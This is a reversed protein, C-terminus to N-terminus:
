EGGLKKDLLDEIRNLRREIKLKKDDPISAIIDQIGEFEFNLERKLDRMLSSKLTEYQQVYKNTEFQFMSKAEDLENKLDSITGDKNEIESHFHEIEQNLEEIQEDKEKKYQMLNDNNKKLLANQDLQASLRDEMKYYLYQVDKFKGSFNKKELLLPISVCQLNAVQNRELKGYYDVFAREITSADLSTAGGKYYKRSTAMWLYNAIAGTHLTIQKKVSNNELKFEVSKLFELITSRTPVSEIVGLYSKENLELKIYFERCWNNIYDLTVNLTKNKRPLNNYVKLMFISWSNIDTLRNKVADLLEILNASSIENSNIYTKYTKEVNSLLRSDDDFNLIVEKTEEFDNNKNILINDQEM